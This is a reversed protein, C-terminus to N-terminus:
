LNIRKKRKQLKNESLELITRKKKRQFSQNWVLQVGSLISRTYCGSWPPPNPRKFLSFSYKGLRFHVTFSVYNEGFYNGQWEVCKNRPIKCRDFCMQFIDESIKHQYLTSRMIDEIDEFRKCKSKNKLKLFFFYRVSFSQYSPSTKNM